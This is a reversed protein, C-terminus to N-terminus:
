FNAFIKSGHDSKDVFENLIIKVDTADTKDKHIHLLMLYNLCEQKMTAQLHLKLQMIPPSCRFGCFNSCMNTATM